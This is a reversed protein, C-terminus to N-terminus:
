RRAAKEIVVDVGALVEAEVVEVKDGLTPFLYPHMAQSVTVTANGFVPHQFEDAGDGGKNGLEFLAAVTGHASISVKGPAMQVEITPPIQVSYPEVRVRAAEAIVEGAAKLRRITEAELEPGALRMSAAFLGLDSKVGLGDIM